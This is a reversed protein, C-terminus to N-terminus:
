WCATSTSSKSPVSAPICPRSTSSTRPRVYDSIRSVCSVRPVSIDTCRWAEAFDPHGRTQHQQRGPSANAGHGFYVRHIVRRWHINALQARRWATRVSRVYTNEGASRAMSRWPPTSMEIPLLVPSMEWASRSCPKLLDFGGDQGTPTAGNGTVSEGLGGAAVTQAVANGAATVATSAMLNIATGLGISASTGANWTTTTQSYARLDM